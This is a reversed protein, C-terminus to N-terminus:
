TSWILDDDGDDDDSLPELELKTFRLDIEEQTLSSRLDEYFHEFGEDDLYIDGVQEGWEDDDWEDIDFGRRRDAEEQTEFRPRTPPQKKYWDFTGQAGSSTIIPRGLSHSVTQLARWDHIREAKEVLKSEIPGKGYAVTFPKYRPEGEEDSVVVGHMRNYGEGDIAIAHKYITPWRHSEHGFAATGFRGDYVDAWFTNSTSTAPLSDGKGDLYRVRCNWHDSPDTCKPEFGGHICIMGLEPVSLSVPLNNMAALDHHDLSAYTSREECRAPDTRGPKSQKYYVRAYADEHNGKLMEFHKFTGDRAEFDFEQSIRWARKSEPGRDVLDGLLIIRDVGYAELDGLMEILEKAHGHVDGVIGLRM